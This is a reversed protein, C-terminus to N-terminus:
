DKRSIKELLNNINEMYRLNKDISEASKSIKDLTEAREKKSDSAHAAAKVIYYGLVYLAAIAGIVGIYVFITTLIDM